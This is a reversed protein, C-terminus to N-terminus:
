ILHQLNNNLINKLTKPHGPYKKKKEKSVPQQKCGNKALPCHTIFIMMEKLFFSHKMKFYSVSPLRM